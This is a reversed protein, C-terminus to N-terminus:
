PVAENPSYEEEGIIDGDSCYVIYDGTNVNWVAYKDILNWQAKTGQFDIRVLATCGLFVGNEFRKIKNSLSVNTINECGYFAHNEIITVSDPITVSKLDTCNKFACKGIITIYDPIVSNKCGVVLTNTATEILCNGNSHYVTNGEDVTIRELDSCLKFAEYHINTVSSPININTAGCFAYRDISTVYNSIVSNKCGFILTNTATEILCNGDTHYPTKETEFTINELSECGDFLYEGVSTVSSPVTISTLAKCDAFACSGIDLVGNPIHVDALSICSSFANIGISTVSDPINISVLSLCRYFAAKGISTVSNPVSVSKIDLCEKFASNAISTVPLSKYTSPIIIETDECTGIGSVSYSKGDDNLTFKLEGEGSDKDDCAAFAFICSLVLLAILATSLFKKM